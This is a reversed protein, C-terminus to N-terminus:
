EPAPLRRFVFKIGGTAGAEGGTGLLAISGKATIEAHVEFEAFHFKGLKEPSKELVDSMQQLFLNINVALQETKLKTTTRGEGRVTGEESTIVVITENADSSRKDM